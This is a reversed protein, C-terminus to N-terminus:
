RGATEGGDKATLGQILKQLEAVRERLEDIEARQQRSRKHLEKIAALSVGAADLASISKDDNGIGFSAHFDQAVPGIHQIADDEIKYNWRTVPLGAIRELLQGSDIDTFNEKLSRDSVSTWQGTDSLYAGTSTDIFKGGGGGAGGGDETIVLGADARLVMQGPQSAWVTDTTAPIVASIVVSGNVGAKAFSGAAYSGMGLARNFRGGPVTAYDGSADNQYGGGVSAYDGSAENQYGGHVAAYQGSVSNEYGGGVTAHGGTTRNGYGGSVTSGTSDAMNQMGGAVTAYLGEDPPGPFM